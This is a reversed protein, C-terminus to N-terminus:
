IVLVIIFNTHIEQFSRPIYLQSNRKSTAATLSRAHIIYSSLAFYNACLLETVKHEQFGQALSIRVLLVLCVVKESLQNSGHLKPASIGSYGFIVSQQSVLVDAILSADKAVASEQASLNHRRDM